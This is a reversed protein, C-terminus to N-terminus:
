EFSSDFSDDFIGTTVIAPTYDNTGILKALLEKKTADWIYIFEQKQLSGPQQMLISIEITDVFVITVNITVTAFDNLFALDNKVAQEIFRAGNSNLGTNNLVRETQSNFQISSNNPMLLNNGWFDFAQENANRTTPTDQEVNGGFLALYIMNEFGYIVSIDNPNKVLNGGDGTEILELDM